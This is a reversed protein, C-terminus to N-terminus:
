FRFEVFGGDELVRDTKEKMERLEAVAWGEEGGGKGKPPILESSSRSQEKLMGALEGINPSEALAEPTLDPRGLKGLVESMKNVSNEKKTDLADIAAKLAPMKKMEELEGQELKPKLDNADGQTMRNNRVRGDLVKCILVRKQVEIAEGITKGLLQVQASKVEQVQERLRLKEEPGKVSEEQAKNLETLKTALEEMTMTETAITLKEALRSEDLFSRGARSSSGRLNKAAKKGWAAGDYNNGADEGGQKAYEQRRWEKGAVNYGAVKDHDDEHDYYGTGMTPFLVGASFAAIVRRSPTCVRRPSCGLSLIPSSSLKTANSTDDKGGEKKERGRTTGSPTARAEAEPELKAKGYFIKGKKKAEGRSAEDKKKAEGHSAEDKKKAEGHSFEDKKKAEGYIAKDKETGPLM